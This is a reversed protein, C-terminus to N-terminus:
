LERFQRKDNRIQSRMAFRGYPTRKTKARSVDAVKHFILLKGYFSLLRAVKRSRWNGKRENSEARKRLDIRKSVRENVIHVTGSMHWSAGLNEEATKCSFYFENSELFLSISHYLVRTPKEIFSGKREEDSPVYYIGKFPTPFLKLTVYMAKIRKESFSESRLQAFDVVQRPLFM